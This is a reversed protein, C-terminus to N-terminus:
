GMFIHSALARKHLSNSAPDTPYGWRAELQHDRVLMLRNAGPNMQTYQTINGDPMWPSMVCFPPSTKSVEIIPLVNPHSIPKHRSRFTEYSTRETCRQYLFCGCMREIERLSNQETERVAKICVAQGRYKGKWIDAFGFPTYDLSKDRLKM